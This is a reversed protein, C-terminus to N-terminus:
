ACKNKAWTRRISLGPAGEIVHTCRSIGLHAQLDGPAGPSACACRAPVKPYWRWWLRVRDLRAHLAGVYAVPASDRRTRWHLLAPSSLECCMLWNRTTLRSKGGTHTNQHATRIARQPQQTNRTTYYLIKYQPIPGSKTVAAQLALWYKRDTIQRRLVLSRLWIAVDIRHLAEERWGSTGSRERPRNGSPGRLPV